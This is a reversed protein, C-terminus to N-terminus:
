RAADPLERYLRRARRAFGSDPWSRSTTACGGTLGEAHGDGGGGADRRLRKHYGSCLVVERGAGLAHLATAGGREDDPQRSAMAQFGPGSGAGAEGAGCRATASSWPACITGDAEGGMISTPGPRDRRGQPGLLGRARRRRPGQLGRAKIVTSAIEEMSWVPRTKPRLAPPNKVRLAPNVLLIEEELAWNYATKLMAHHHAVTTEALPKKKKSGRMKAAYYTSLQARTLKGALVQGLAPDVHIRRIRRYSNYSAVRIEGRTAELWRDLLEALKLRDPNITRHAELEAIWTELLREAAKKGKAEVVKTNKPYRQKQRGKSDLVPQGDKDFAPESPLNM